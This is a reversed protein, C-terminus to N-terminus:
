GEEQVLRQIMNINAEDYVGNYRPMSQLVILWRQLFEQNHMLVSREALWRKRYENSERVLEVWELYCAECLVRQQSIHAKRVEFTYKQDQATFVALAQCRWCNYALDRYPRPTYHYAYSRKSEVSWCDPDCPVGAPDGTPEGTFFGAGM